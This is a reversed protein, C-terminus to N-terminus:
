QVILGCLKEDQQIKKIEEVLQEKSIDTPYKHLDFDIGIKEAAEQKKRVYTQSPKNDGVLVVALKPTIGKIKLEDVWTKVKALIKEAIAKGNIIQAQKRRFCM